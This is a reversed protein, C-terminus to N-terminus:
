SPAPVNGARGLGARVAYSVAHIGLRGCIGAATLADVAVNSRLHKRYYRWMGLHHAAMARYVANRSSGGILHQVRARPFYVVGLGADRLRRCYDVDEISFFYQEDFLGVCDIARRHIFMCAGSVWDVARVENHPWDTMLYERSWRNGPLFKTTLSHRNFFATRYGPFARCSAQLSGDPNELRAGAVGLEEHAALYAAAERFGPDLLLTDPNLVCLTECQPLARLGANAATAFGVNSLNTVLQVSPFRAAIAALTGDTSANDVIVTTELAAGGLQRSISDLCSLVFQRCEFTVIVIGLTM